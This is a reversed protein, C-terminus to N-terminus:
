PNHGSLIQNLQEISEPSKRSENKIIHSEHHEFIHSIGLLTLRSSREYGYYFSFDDDNQLSYINPMEGTSIFRMPESWTVGGNFSSIYRIFSSSKWMLYLRDSGKVFVPERINEDCVIEKGDIYLQSDHIFALNEKGGFDWLVPSHADSYLKNFFEPKEDDLSTFGLIGNKATYFVRNGFVCFSYNSLKSVCSPKANGTLICHILLIEGNIQASYLLNLRGGVTYLQMKLITIDPNLSCIRHKKWINNRKKAYILQNQGNLCLVHVCTDPTKLVSFPEKGLPIIQTHEGFKGNADCRKMCIGEYPKSFYFEGGIGNKILYNM